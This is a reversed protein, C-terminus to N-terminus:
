RGSFPARSQPALYTPWRPIWEAFSAVVIAALFVCDIIAAARVSHGLALCSWGVVAPASTAVMLGACLAIYRSIQRAGIRLLAIGAVAAYTNAAVLCWAIGPQGISVGHAVAWAALVVLPMSVALMLPIRAGLTLATGLLVAVPIAFSLATEVSWHAKDQIFLIDTLVLTAIGCALHFVKRTTLAICASVALVVHMWQMM